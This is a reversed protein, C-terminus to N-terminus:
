TDTVAPVTKWLVIVGSTFHNQIIKMIARWLLPTDISLRCCM